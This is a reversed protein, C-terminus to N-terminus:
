WRSMPTCFSVSAMGRAPSVLTTSDAPQQVLPVHCPLCGLMCAFFFLVFFLSCGRETLNKMPHEFLFSPHRNMSYSACRKEKVNRTDVNPVTQRQASHHNASNTAMKVAMMEHRWFARLRRESRRVAPGRARPLM